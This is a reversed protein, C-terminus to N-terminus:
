IDARDISIFPAFWFIVGETNGVSRDRVDISPGLEGVVAVVDNNSVLDISDFDESEVSM